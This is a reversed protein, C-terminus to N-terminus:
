IIKKSRKWKREDVEGEEKNSIVVFSNYLFLFIWSSVTGRATWKFHMLLIISNWNENLVSISTKLLSILHSNEQPPKKYTCRMFNTPEGDMWRCCNQIWEFKFYIRNNITIHHNGQKNRFLPKQPISTSGEDDFSIKRTQYAFFTIAFNLSVVWRLKWMNDGRSLWHRALTTCSRGKSDHFYGFNYVKRKTQKENNISTTAFSNKLSRIVIFLSRFWKFNTLSSKM